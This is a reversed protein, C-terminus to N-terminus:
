PSSLGRIHRVLSTITEQSLLSGFAPMLGRGNTIVTVLRADDQATQWTAQSFDAIQAGPPKGSGNGRGEAGHCAACRTQWLMAVARRGEDAADGATVPVRAPDVQTAEPQGHDAPTWVRRPARRECGGLAMWCLALGCVALGCVAVRSLVAFASFHRTPTASGVSM